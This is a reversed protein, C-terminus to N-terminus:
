PKRALLKNEQLFMRAKKSLSFYIFSGDKIFYMYSCSDGRTSFYITKLVDEKNILFLKGESRCERTENQQVFVQNVEKLLTNVKASDNTATYTFFRTYRLSDGDPNDYYLIQLSDAKWLDPEVDRVKKPGSTSNASAEKESASVNDNTNNCAFITTVFGVLLVVRLNM